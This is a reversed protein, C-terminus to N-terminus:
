LNEERLIKKESEAQEYIVMTEEWIYNDLFNELNVGKRENLQDMRELLDILWDKPVAFWKRHYKDEDPFTELEVAEITNDQRLWELEKHGCRKCESVRVTVNVYLEKDRYFCPDLDDKGNPRIVIGDGFSCKKTNM